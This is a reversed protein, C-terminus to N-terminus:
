EAGVWFCLIFEDTTVSISMIQWRHLGNCYRVLEKENMFRRVQLKDEM